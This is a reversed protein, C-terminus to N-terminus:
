KLGSERLAREQAALRPPLFSLSDDEDDDDDEEEDDEDDDVEGALADAAELADRISGCRSFWTM